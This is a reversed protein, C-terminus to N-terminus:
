IFKRGEELFRESCYVRFYTALDIWIANMDVLILKNRLLISDDYINQTQWYDQRYRFLCCGDVVHM